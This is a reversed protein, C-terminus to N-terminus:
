APNVRRYLWALGFMLVIAVLLIAGALLRDNTSVGAEGGGSQPEPAASAEAPASQGPALVVVTGKMQTSHVTCFYPFTGATAFTFKYADGDNRLKLGSDFLKGVDAGNPEGSTVSHPEGIGKTVTWTVETGETVVIRDPVFSRDRLEVQNPDAAVTVAITGLGLLLGALTALGFRHTSTM